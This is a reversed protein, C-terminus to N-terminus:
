QCWDHGLGLAKAFWLPQPILCFPTRIPLCHCRVLFMDVYSVYFGCQRAAVHQGEIDHPEEKERVAIEGTVGVGQEVALAKAAGMVPHEVEDIQAGAHRDGVQEIDELDGLLAQGAHQSLQDVIAIDFLFGPVRIAPLAQQM